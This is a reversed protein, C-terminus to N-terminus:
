QWPRERRAVENAIHQQAKLHQQRYHQTVAYATLGTAIVAGKHPDFDNVRLFYLMALPFLVAPLFFAFFVVSIGTEASGYTDAWWPAAGGTDPIRTLLAFVQYGTCYWFFGLWHLLGDIQGKVILEWGFLFLLWGRMLDAVWRWVPASIQEHKRPFIASRLSPWDHRLRDYERAAKASLPEGGPVALLNPEHTWGQSRAHFFWEGDETYVDNGDLDKLWGTSTM